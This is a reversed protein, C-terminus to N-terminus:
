RAKSDFHKSKLFEALAKQDIKGKKFQDHYFLIQSIVGYDAGKIVLKYIEPYNDAFWSIDEDEAIGTYAEIYSDNNTLQEDTFKREKMKKQVFKIALIIRQTEPEYKDLFERNM